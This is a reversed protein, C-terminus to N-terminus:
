ISERASAHLKGNKAIGIWSFSKESGDKCIIKSNFEIVQDENLSKLDSDLSITSKDKKIFRSIERGRVESLEYGLVVKFIPNLDEVILTELDIICMLDTSYNLLTTLNELRKSKEALVKSDRDFARHVAFTSRNVMFSIVVVSALVFLVSALSFLSLNDGSLRSGVPIGLADANFLILITLLAVISWLTGQKQSTSFAAVPFITLVFIAPGDIGGTFCILVVIELYSLVILIQYTLYIKKHLYFLAMNALLGIIFIASIIILPGKVDFVFYIIALVIGFFGAVLYGVIKTVSTQRDLLEKFVPKTM